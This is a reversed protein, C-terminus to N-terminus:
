EAAMAILPDVTSARRAPVLCAVLSVVSMVAATALISAPHLAPVEFLVRQMLRGAMWTGAVGLVTGAGLLRVGISLFQGGIQRPQAGLALRVGIERRRQAV